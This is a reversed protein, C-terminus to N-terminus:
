SNKLVGNEILSVRCREIISTEKQEKAKTPSSAHFSNLVESSLYTFSESFDGNLLSNIEDIIDPLIEEEKENYYNYAEDAFQQKDYHSYYENYMQETYEGGKESLIAALDIEVGFLVLTPNCYKRYSFALETFNGNGIKKLSKPLIVKYDYRKESFTFPVTANNAIETVGEPIVIETLGDEHTLKKLVGNEIEFAM